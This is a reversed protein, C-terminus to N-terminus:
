DSLIERRFGFCTFQGGIAAESIRFQDKSESGPYWAARKVQWIAQDSRRRLHSRESNM